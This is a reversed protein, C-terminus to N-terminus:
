VRLVTTQYCAVFGFGRGLLLFEIMQGILGDDELRAAALGAASTQIEGSHMEEALVGEVFTTQVVKILVSLTGDTRRCVCGHAGDSLALDIRRILM